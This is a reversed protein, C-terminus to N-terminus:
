HLFVVKPRSDRQYGGLTPMLNVYFLDNLFFVKLNKLIKFQKEQTCFGFMIVGCVGSSISLSM